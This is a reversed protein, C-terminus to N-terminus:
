VANFVQHHASVCHDVVPVNSRSPIDVNPDSASGLICLSHFLRHAVESEVRRAKVAPLEHFRASHQANPLVRQSEVQDIM